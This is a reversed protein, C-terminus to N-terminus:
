ARTGRRRRYSSTKARATRLLYAGTAVGALGGGASGVAESRTTSTTRVVRHKARVELEFQTDTVFVRVAEDIRRGARDIVEETAKRVAHEVAKRLHERLEVSARDRNFRGLRRVGNGGLCPAVRGAAFTAADDAAGPFAQGLEVRQRRVEELLRDLRGQAKQAALRLQTQVAGVRKRPWAAKLERGRVRVLRALLRCLAPIGSEQYAQEWGPQPPRRFAGTEWTRGLRDRAVYVSVPLPEGLRLVEGLGSQALQELQERGWRAQDQRRVPAKPVVKRVLEGTQSDEDKEFTDAKTLVLCGDLQQNGSENLLRRLEQMESSKFPADSATVLILFDARAAYQRARIANETTGSLVGPCDIWLLGPLRFGQYDRTCETPSEELRGVPEEGVFCQGRPGDAGPMELGALHNALASKGANVEGFVLVIFRDENEAAHEFDEATADLADLVRRNQERVANLAQRVSSVVEAPVGQPVELQPPPTNLRARQQEIARHFQERLLRVSARGDEPGQVLQAFAQVFEQWAV